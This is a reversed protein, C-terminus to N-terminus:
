RAAPSSSSTRNAPTPGSALRRRSSVDGSACSAIGPTFHDAGGACRTGACCSTPPDVRRTWTRVERLDHAVLRRHGACRSPSRIRCRSSAASTSAPLVVPITGSADLWLTAQWVGGTGQAVRWIRPQNSDTFYAAGDRSVAVDNLFTGAPTALAALQRATPRCSGCGGARAAPSSCAAPTTSTSAARPPAATWAAQLWVELTEEGMRGRYIRGGDNVGSVYFTERKPDYGIGELLLGAAPLDYGFSANDRQGTRGACGAGPDPDADLDLVAAMSKM